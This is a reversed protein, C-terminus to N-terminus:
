FSDVLSRDSYRLNTIYFEAVKNPLAMIMEELSERLGRRRGDIIIPIRNKM